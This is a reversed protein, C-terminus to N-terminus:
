IRRIEKRLGDSKLDESLKYVRFDVGLEDATKKKQALFSKSQPNEGILVAALIKKPSELKKLREVIEEAIKKGDIKM